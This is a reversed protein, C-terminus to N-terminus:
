GEMKLHILLASIDAPTIGSIRSAQGITEPKIKNLKERAELALNEIELYNLATSLKIKEYKVNRNIQRMLKEIYGAYKIEIEVALKVDDTFESLDIIESIISASVNPRKLYENAMLGFTLPELSYKEKIEPKILADNIKTEQLVVQLKTIQEVKALFKQYHNESVLKHEYGLKTLRTDANDNRLMLRYESRSTLLRYPEETGKTILDDIMLGIYSDARSLILPEAGIVKLAANAGAILGQGAAEEYGSTGNIQGATYLNAVNKLELTAKLQMPNVADYEIAYGYHVIEAQELGPLSAIMKDQVDYPMSTSFGQVYITEGSRTEPELFLQHREKDAFRVLKDEISPCYRPGVGEIVGSFMGSKKLNENIIQHTKPTTHILYCPLFTQSDSYIPDVYSFALPEDDGPALSAKSFDITSAKVRAPTGTKLKFLQVGLEVLSDSLTRTTPQNMPGSSTKNSGNIIYSDMFTGATIVVAKAMISEGTKLKIGSIQTQKQDYLLNEVNAELVTLNPTNLIFQQMKEPYVERDIQARLAHVAPGKSRNLMKIQILSQDTVKGMLGGLADIERVVIGKAPGGISPNCPAQAITKISSTVLLTKVGIRASAHAAECGAHGGGIVIVDYEKM